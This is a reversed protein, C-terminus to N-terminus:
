LAFKHDPCEQEKKQYDKQGRQAKGDRRGAEESKPGQLESDANQETKVRHEIEADNCISQAAIKSVAADSYYAAKDNQKATGQNPQRKELISAYHDRLDSVTIPKHQPKPIQVDVYEADDGVVIASQM